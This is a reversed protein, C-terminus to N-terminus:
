AAARRVAEVIQKLRYPKPLFLLPQSLSQLRNTLEAAFASVVIVGIEPDLRRALAAVEVGDLKGPMKVDTLLVDFNDPCKLQMAAAEGDSAEVVEFGEERLTEVALHRILADDEVVLVRTAVTM